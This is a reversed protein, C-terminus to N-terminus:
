PAFRELIRASASEVNVWANRLGVRALALRGQAQTLDRQAENLRVLSGQGATYEKEVLDRNQRVLAANARQLELQRQAADLSALAQRLENAVNIRVADRNKESESVVREAERVRAV